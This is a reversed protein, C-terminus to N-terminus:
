LVCQHDGLKSLHGFVLRFNRQIWDLVFDTKFIMQEINQLNLLTCSQARWVEQLRTRVVVIKNTSWQLLDLVPSNCTPKIKMMMMMMGGASEKTCIDGSKWRLPLLQLYLQYIEQLSKVLIYYWVYQLLIHLENHHHLNKNVGFILSKLSMIHSYSDNWSILYANQFQWM